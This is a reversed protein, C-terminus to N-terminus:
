NRIFAHLILFIFFANAALAFYLFFNELVHIGVPTHSEPTRLALRWGLFFVFGFLDRRCVRRM